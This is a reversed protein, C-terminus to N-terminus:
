RAIVGARLRKKDFKGVSTVPIEEMTVFDDPIWFRPFRNELHAVLEQDSIDPMRVVFARPRENWREHPVSVVAAAVVGPHDMLANELEISSIWEGGSKILDNVRDVVKLYGHPDVSVIDGTHYWGDLFVQASRDDREYEEAVWPGRLLLEGPTEGDWAVLTGTSDEVRWELGPVVFGQRLRLAQLEAGTPADSRPRGVLVLPSAETMGYSHVMPVGAEDASALLAPPLPAGGSVLMRLSPLQTGRAALGRLVDMWVTPVAAAFTVDHEVMADLVVEAGPREGPLVLTAGLWLAAFPLGWANVHFMPVVPLVVDSESLAWTDALGLMMSHLYLARHSYLVGKPVGTTASSYSTAAPTREDLDPYSFHDSSQRALLEEYDDDPPRSVGQPSGMWFVPLDGLAPRAQVLLDRLDADCFLVRDYAHKVVQSVQESSLRVNVTHLVAGSMTVALYLELHRHHNWALTGVRDGPGVGLERLGHALRDVRAFLEAYTLDTVEGGTRSIVHRNPFATRARTMMQTVTLQDRDM